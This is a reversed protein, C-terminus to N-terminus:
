YYNLKTMLQTVLEHELKALSSGLAAGMAAFGIPTRFPGNYTTPTTLGIISISLNSTLTQSANTNTGNSVGLRYGTTLNSATRELRTMGFRSTNAGYTSNANTGNIRGAVSGAVNPNLASRRNNTSDTYGIGGGATETENQKSCYISLGADNRAWKTATATNYGTDIAGDTSGNSTHMWGNKSLYPNNSVTTQNVRVAEYQLPNCLNLLTFKEFSTGYLINSISDQFTNYYDLNYGFFYCAEYREFLEKGENLFINVMRLQYDPPITYGKAKAVRIVLDLERCYKYPDSIHFHSSSRQKINSATVIM